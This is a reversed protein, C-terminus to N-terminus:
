SLEGCAACCSHGIDSLWARKRHQEDLPPAQKLRLSTAAKMYSAQPVALSAAFDQM